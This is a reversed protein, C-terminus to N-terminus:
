MNIVEHIDSEDPSKELFYNTAETDCEDELGIVNELYLQFAEIKYSKIFDTLMDRFSKTGSKLVNEMFELGKGKKILNYVSYALICSIINGHSVGETGNIIKIVIHPPINKKEVNIYDKSNVYIKSYIGRYLKVIQEHCKENVSKNEKIIKDLKRIFSPSSHLIHDFLANICKEKITCCPDIHKGLLIHDVTENNEGKTLIKVTDDDWAIYELLQSMFSTFSNDDNILGTYSDYAMHRVVDGFESILRVIDDYNICKDNVSTYNSIVCVHVKKTYETKNGTKFKDSLKVFLPGDINKSPYSQLDLYLVGQKDNSGIKKCIYTEVNKNWTPLDSKLFELGFYKKIIDFILPIVTCPKFLKKNQFKNHYYIIDSDEIKRQLGEKKINYLEHQSTCNAKEAINELLDFVTESKESKKNVLDFYSRYGLDKAYNHRLCVITAIDIMAPHTKEYYIDQIKKRIEPDEVSNILYFYNNRSLKIGNVKSTNGSIFLPKDFKITQQVHMKRVMITTRKKISESIKSINSSNKNIGKKRFSRIIRHIFLKFSNSIKKKGVIDVLMDYLKKNSYMENVSISLKENTIDWFSNDETLLLKLGVYSNYINFNYTDVTIFEVIKTYEDGNEYEVLLKELEQNSDHIYKLVNDRLKLDNYNFLQEIVIPKMINYNYEYNKNNEKEALLKNM